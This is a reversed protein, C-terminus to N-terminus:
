KVRYILIHLNDNIVNVDIHINGVWRMFTINNFLHKSTYIVDGLLAEPRIFMNGLILNLDGITTTVSVDAFEILADRVLVTVLQKRLTMFNEFSNPINYLDVNDKLVRNTIANIDDLIVSADLLYIKDMLTNKALM